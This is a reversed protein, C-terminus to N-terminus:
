GVQKLSTYIQLSHVELKHVHAISHLRTCTSDSKQVREPFLSVSLTETDDSRQQNVGRTISRARRSSGARAVTGWDHGKPDEFADHAVKNTILSKRPLASGPVKRSVASAEEAKFRSSPNTTSAPFTSLTGYLVKLRSSSEKLM